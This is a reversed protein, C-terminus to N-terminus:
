EEHQVSDQAPIRARDWHLTAWNLIAGCDTRITAPPLPQGLAALCRMLNAPARTDDLPRALNQKSLKQGQENLLLPLHGYRPVPLGLLRQLRIQCPTSELLDRGRIVDSIRQYDDDIVVALQYSYLGDKRLLVVDAADADSALTIPGLMSDHFCSHESAIRLRIAASEYPRQQSQPCDAAHISKGADLQQRSCICYYAHGHSLLCALAQDYASSRNHQYLPEDDWRFGHALLSKCILIDAGPRERPPDIDEIRLLWEGGHARADLYSGLASLLSGMHLPGSPSPAFRGRYPSSSPVLQM